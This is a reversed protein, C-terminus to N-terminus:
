AGAPPGGFGPSLSRKRSALVRRRTTTAPGRSATSSSHSWRGPCALRTAVDAMTPRRSPQKHASPTPTMASEQSIHHNVCSITQNM